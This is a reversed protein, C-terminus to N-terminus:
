AYRTNIPGTNISIKIYVNLILSSRNTPGIQVWKAILSHIEQKHLIFLMETINNKNRALKIQLMMMRLDQTETLDQQRWSKRNSSVIFKM